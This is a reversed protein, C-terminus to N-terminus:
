FKIKAFKRRGEEYKIKEERDGSKERLLRSIVENHNPADWELKLYNIYKQNESDVYIRKDKKKKM